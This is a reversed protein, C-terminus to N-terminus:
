THMCRSDHHIEAVSVPESLDYTAIALRTRQKGVNIQLRIADYYRLTPYYSHSM